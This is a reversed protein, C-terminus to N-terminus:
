RNFKLYKQLRRLWAVGIPVPISLKLEGVIEAYKLADLRKQADEFSTAVIDISWKHGEYQYNCLYTKYERQDQETNM